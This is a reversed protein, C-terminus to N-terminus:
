PASDGDQGPQPAPDDPQPAPGPQPTDGPQPGPHGYPAQGPQPAQGPNGYPPPAYAPQLPLGAATALDQALNETRMRRDIYLLGLILPPFTGVFIQGIMQGALALAVVGAMSILVSTLSSDSDVNSTTLVSSFMAAASFPLQIVYSAMGAIMQGLLSIGLIRWWSGRVLRSSRRMAAIPGQHELVVATPALSFKVWLWSALPGAALLLLFTIGLFVAASDADGNSVVLALVSAECAMLLVLPVLAILATLFVTGLMARLRSVATERVMRFTVPRGLVAGQLVAPVAAQVLTLALVFLVIGILVVVGLAVLVPTIDDWDVDTEGSYESIRDLSGHVASLAILLTAMFAVAAAGYTAATFGFLAKWYRGMTSFAGNFINSLQLPALPIVGPEPPPPMRRGGWGQHAGWGYPAGGQAGGGWGADQTM